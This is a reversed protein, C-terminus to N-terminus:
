MWFCMFAFGGVGAGRFFGRAWASRDSFNRFVDESGLIRMMASLDGIRM